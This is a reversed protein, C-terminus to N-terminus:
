IPTQQRPALSSGFLTGVIISLLIFFPLLDVMLNLSVSTSNAKFTAIQQQILPFFAVFIMFEVFAFIMGSISLQAKKLLQAKEM